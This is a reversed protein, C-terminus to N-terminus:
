FSWDLGIGVGFEDDAFENYRGEAVLAVNDKITKGVQVEAVHKSPGFNYDWFAEVWTDDTIDYRGSIGAQMGAGDSVPYFKTGLRTGEPTDPEYTLGLRTTNSKDFDGNYEGAIGIGSEGRKTLRIEGYPKTLIDSEGETEVDVFGFLKTGLPLNTAGGEIGGTYRGRTDYYGNVRGFEEAIAERAALAIFAASGINLLYKGITM